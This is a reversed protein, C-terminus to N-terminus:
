AYVLTPLCMGPSLVLKASVSRFQVLCCGGRSCLLVWPGVVATTIAVCSIAFFVYKTKESLPLNISVVDCQKLFDDLDKVLEVGEEDM